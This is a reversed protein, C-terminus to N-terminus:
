RSKGKSQGKGKEHTKNGQMQEHKAQLKRRKKLAQTISRAVLLVVLIGIVVYAWTPFGRTGLDVETVDAGVFNLDHVRDTGTDAPDFAVEVRAERDGAKVTLERGLDTNHLHLRVRYFGRRDTMTEGLLGEDATVAVTLDAKPNERADLVYGQVIYRHDAEHEASAAGALLIMLVFLVAVRFMAPSPKYRDIAVITM